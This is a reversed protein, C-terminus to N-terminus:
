VATVLLQSWCKHTEAATKELKFCFKICVCQGRLDAMVFGYVWPFVVIPIREGIIYGFVWSSAAQWLSELLTHPSVGIPIEIYECWNLRLTWIKPIKTDCWTIPINGEKRLKLKLGDANNQWHGVPRYV